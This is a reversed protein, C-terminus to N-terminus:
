VATFGLYLCTEAEPRPQM